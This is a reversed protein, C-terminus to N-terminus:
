QNWATAVSWQKPPHSQCQHTRALLETALDGPTMYKHEGHVAAANSASILKKGDKNKWRALLWEQSGHQPKPIQFINEM